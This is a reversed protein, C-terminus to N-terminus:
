PGDRVERAARLYNYITARSFGFREAVIPVARRVQFVGKGDLRSILAIKDDRSLVPGKIGMEGVTESILGGITQDVDDSLTESIDDEIETAAVQGLLRQVEMFATVEYNICFAGQARGAEDRIFITSSKMVRDDAIRTQYRHLDDDTEGARVRQLLLDTAAGGVARASLSGQLHVISHELDSFDHIVVECHPAFLRELGAAIQKLMAFAPADDEVWSTAAARAKRTKAAPSLTASHAAPRRDQRGNQLPSARRNAAM